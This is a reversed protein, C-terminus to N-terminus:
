KNRKSIEKFIQEIKLNNNVLLVFLHYLLDVSEEILRKPTEKKAARVVEAAEEYIKECIKDLGKQFLFVTYSGEPLKRKRNKILEFLEQIAAGDKDNLKDGRFCTAEGTHCSSGVPNAKLLLTDNDCDLSIDVIKLVNKSEEGKMWLRKKTRSYFWAKQTSMTKKLADNNMYGLMIIQGTMANQIIAPVLGNVKEWNIAKTLQAFNKKKM